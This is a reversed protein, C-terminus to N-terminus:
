RATACSSSRCSTPPTARRSAGCRWRRPAGAIPPAPTPPRPPASCRSRGRSADQGGRRPTPRRDTSSTGRGSAADLVPSLEALGVGPAARPRRALPGLRRDSGAPRAPGGPRRWRTPPRWPRARRAAALARDVVEGIDVARGGLAWIASTPRGGSPTRRASPSSPRGCRSPTARRGLAGPRAGADRSRVSRPTAAVERARRSSSPRSPGTSPASCGGSWRPSGARARRRSRGCRRSCGCAAGRRAVAVREDGPHGFRATLVTAQQGALEGESREVALDPWAARLDEEWAEAAETASARAGRDRLRVGFQRGAGPDAPSAFVAFRTDDSAPRWGGPVSWALRPPVEPVPKEPKRQRPPTTHWRALESDVLPEIRPGLAWLLGLIAAGGAVISWRVRRAFRPWREVEDPDMILGLGLGTLLGGLHAFNDTTPNSLGSWFMLLLDPLMAFGLWRRAAEPLVDTRVFGFVVAAAILGFIGGSAGLSPTWPAFFVSLLSGGLVSAAYLAVLNRWGLARELIWGLYGLWLMNLTVHLTETHVLGMTLLRYVQGDEFVFPSWKTFRVTLLAAAGPLWALWWVRIQFGVLLATVVPPPSDAFRQNWALAGEDRLSRYLELESALVFAEGTVADLRIRADPPVRGARM